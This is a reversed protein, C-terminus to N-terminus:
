TICPMSMTSKMAVAGVPLAPPIPSTGLCAMMMSSMTRRFGQHDREADIEVFNRQDAIRAIGGVRVDRQVRPHTDVGAGVANGHVRARVLAVDAHAVTEVEGLHQRNFEIDFAIGEGTR